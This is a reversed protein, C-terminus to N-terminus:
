EDGGRCARVVAKVGDCFLWGVFLTWGGHNTDSFCWRLFDFFNM